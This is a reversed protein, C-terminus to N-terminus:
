QEIQNAFLVFGFDLITQRKPRQWNGRGLSAFKCFGNEALKPNDFGLGHVIWARSQGALDELVIRFNASFPTELTSVVSSGNEPFMSGIKKM